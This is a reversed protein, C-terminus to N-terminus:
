SDIFEATLIIVTRPPIKLNIKQHFETLLEANRGDEYRIYTNICIKWQMGTPLQPLQMSLPEWYANMCYFVIDDEDNDDKGAYM